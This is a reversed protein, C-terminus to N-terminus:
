RWAGYVGGEGDLDVDMPRFDLCFCGYEICINVYM